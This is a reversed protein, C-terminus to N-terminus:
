AVGGPQEAALRDQWEQLQAQPWRLHRGVKIAPPATGMSRWYYLTRRSIRLHAQVEDTTLLRDAV